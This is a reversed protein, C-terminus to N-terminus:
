ARNVPRHKRTDASSAILHELETVLTEIGMLQNDGIADGGSETGEFVAYDWRVM